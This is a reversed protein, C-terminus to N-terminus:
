DVDNRSLIQAPTKRIVNFVPLLGVIINFVFIILVSIGIVGLNLMFQDQYYPVVQLGKLVNAMILLGPIATVTTIAIIEGLFMKYIDIKKLGIARLIGVEKVRSLFSSRMMLFIEILSVALIISALIISSIIAEKNSAIYRERDKNYTDEIYKGQEKFYNMVKTKDKPYITLNKSDQIVKYKITNNTTFFDNLNEKSEYYGVVKLKNGNIEDKVTDYLEMDYENMENVIIEYDNEPMRGKTLEIKDKALEIDYIKHSLYDSTENQNMLMGSTYPDGAQSNALVNIFINKNMYISPTGYDCIGVIKFDKLEVKDSSPGTFINDVNVSIERNLYDEIRNVGAGRSNSYSTNIIKELVKKDMVVEYKNKPMRGLILNGGNIIDLNTLSASFTDFSDRTQYYDDYKVQFQIQSDGPIIYDVFDLKEYKLYDKVKVDDDIVILYDKNRTVFKEDKINTVGTINSVAYLVFMSSAVFGLLLLKKLISYNYIKKFGEILLTVPNYISTYRKKYKKNIIDEYKFEYKEYEEKSMKKYYDDILEISSSDDIVEVKHEKAEVYLNGNKVVLKVDLKDQENLYVKIDLNDKNLTEIKQFEKLYINNELRYDLGNNHENERDNVVKGDVVEIIRSAYFEALDREHTVLIVLKDKSISKIINMIELSNKSDLNGTPEDAIIISPNKVLARAIAVRQREGGSIMNAYRNRYKYIGLENLIYNVRKKIEDKNKVGSMKLALAVNQFVTM